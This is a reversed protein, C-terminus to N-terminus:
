FIRLHDNQQFVELRTLAGTNKKLDGNKLILCSLDLPQHNVWM